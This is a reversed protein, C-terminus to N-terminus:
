KQEFHSHGCSPCNYVIGLNIHDIYGMEELESTLYKKRCSPNTCMYDWFKRKNTHKEGM